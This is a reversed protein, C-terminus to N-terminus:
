KTEQSLCEPQKCTKPIKLVHVNKSMKQVCKLFHIGILLFAPGYPIHINLKLFYHGIWSNELTNTGELQSRLGQQMIGTPKSFKRTNRTHCSTQPDDQVNETGSRTGANEEFLGRQNKQFHIHLPWLKPVLLAWQQITM